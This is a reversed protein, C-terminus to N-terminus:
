RIQHRAPIHIMILMRRACHEGASAGVLQGHAATLVALANQGVSERTRASPRTTSSHLITRYPHPRRPLLCGMNAGVGSSSIRTVAELLPLLLQLRLLLQLAARRSGRATATAEAGAAVATAAMVVTAVTAVM